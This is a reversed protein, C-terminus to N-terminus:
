VNFVGEFPVWNFPLATRQFQFPYLERYVIWLVLVAALAQLKKPSPTRFLTMAILCGAAASAVRAPSLTWSSLVAQALFVTCFGALCLDAQRPSLECRRFIVYLLVTGVLINGTELSFFQPHQLSEWSRMLQPRRLFPIFPYGNATLWFITMLVPFPRVMPLRRLLPEFASRLFLSAALAGMGSGLTNALVDRWSPDRTPIFRQSWEVALSFLGGFLLVGLVAPRSNRRLAFVALAGMGVYLLINAVFDELDSVTRIPEFTMPLPPRDFSWPFFSLYLIACLFFVFLLRM